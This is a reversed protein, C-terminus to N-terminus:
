PLDGADAAADVIVSIEDAIEAAIRELRTRSRKLDRCYVEARAKCFYRGDAMRTIGIPIAFLYTRLDAYEELDPFRRETAAIADLTFQQEAYEDPAYLTLHLGGGSVTVNLRAFDVSHGQDLMAILNDRNTREATGTATM